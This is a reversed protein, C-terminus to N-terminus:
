ANVEALEEVREVDTPSGTLKGAFAAALLSRRLAASRRKSRQIERLAAEVSGEISAAESVIYDQAELSPLPVRTEAIAGQDVKPMSGALGKARSRLHRHTREATMALALYRPRVRQENARLRILLDPFIAWDEPGDYLATTGVLEPTNARQVFIDGPRLWLDSVKGPDAVTIKTNADTFSRLTVATLTLTRIGRDSGQVARASHGNRMKERLLEGVPVTEVGDTWVLADLASATLRDARIESRRLLEDAADLRSLHDELIEVIRRQEGVPAVPVRLGLFKDKTLNLGSESIGTKMADISWQADPSLLYYELFRPDVEARTRFRYM